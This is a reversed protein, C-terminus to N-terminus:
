WKQKVYADHGRERWGTWKGGSWKGERTLMLNEDGGNLGSREVKGSRWKGECILILAGKRGSGVSRWWM